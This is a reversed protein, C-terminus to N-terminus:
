YTTLKTQFEAPKVPTSSGYSGGSFQSTHTYIFIMADHKLSVVINSNKEM